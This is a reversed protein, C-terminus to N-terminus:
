YKRKKNKLSFFFNCNSFDGVCFEEDPKMSSNITKDLKKIIEPTQWENGYLKTLIDKALNDIQLEPQKITGAGSENSDDIKEIMPNKILTPTTKASKKFEVTHQSEADSLRVENENRQNLNTEKENEFSSKENNENREKNNEENNGDNENEVSNEPSYLYTVVPEKLQFKIKITASINIKEVCIDSDHSPTNNSSKSVSNEKNPTQHLSETNEKDKNKQNEAAYIMKSKDSEYSTESIEISDEVFQENEDELSEQFRQRRPCQSPLLLSSSSTQSEENEIGTQLPPINDLFEHLRQIRVNKETCPLSLDSERNSPNIDSIQVNFSRESESASDSIVIVENDDSSENIEETESIIVSKNPTSDSDIIYISDDKISSRKSFRREAASSMSPSSFPYLIPLKQENETSIRYSTTVSLTDADVLETNEEKIEKKMENNPTKIGLQQVQLSLIKLDDNASNQQDDNETGFLSESSPIPKELKTEKNDSQNIAETSIHLHEMKVEDIDNDLNKDDVTENLTTNTSRYETVDSDSFELKEMFQVSLKTTSKEIVVDNNQGKTIAAEIKQSTRSLFLRNLEEAENESEDDTLLERLLSRSVKNKKSITNVDEKDDENDSNKGYKMLPGADKKNSSLTLKAFESVM